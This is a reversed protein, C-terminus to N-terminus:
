QCGGGFLGSLILLVIVFAVGFGFLEFAIDMAHRYFNDSFTRIDM